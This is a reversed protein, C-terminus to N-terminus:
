SVPVTVDDSSLAQTLWSSSTTSIYWPIAAVLMLVASGGVLGVTVWAPRVYGNQVIKDFVGSKSSILAGLIALLLTNMSSIVQARTQLQASLQLTLDTIRRLHALM